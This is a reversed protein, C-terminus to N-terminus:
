RSLIKRVAHGVQKIPKSSPEFNLTLGYTQQTDDVLPLVAFSIEQQDVSSHHRVVYDGILYGFTSGVVVDSPFHRRGTIRSVSIATAFGYACLRTPWGPYEAAIVRALAWSATAHGSPFSSAV